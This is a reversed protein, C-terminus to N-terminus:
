KMKRKKIKRRMKEVEERKNMGQPEVTMLIDQWYLEFEELRERIVKPGHYNNSPINMIKVIPQFKFDENFNHGPELFHETIGCTNVKTRHHNRYNSIRKKIWKTNGVGQKSHRNCTVLYIVNKTECDMKQRIKYVKGTSISQFTEGKSNELLECYSCPKGCPGSQANEEDHHNILVRSPALIEKMNYGGRKYSIQFHNTSQPIINRQEADGTLWEKNKTM